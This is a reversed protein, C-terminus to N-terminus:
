DKHEQHAQLIKGLLFASEDSLDNASLNIEVLSSNDLMCPMLAVLIEHKYICFSLRLKKLSKCQLIGKNLRSASKDTM